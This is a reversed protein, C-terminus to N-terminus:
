VRAYFYTYFGAGFLILFTAAISIWIIVGGLLRLLFLYFYGLVM